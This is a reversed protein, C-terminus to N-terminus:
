GPAQLFEDDRQPKDPLRRTPDDWLLTLHYCSTNEQRDAWLQYRMDRIVNPLDKLPQSASFTQFQQAFEVLGDKQRTWLAVPAGANLLYLMVNQPRPALVDPVFGFAICMGEKLKGRIQRWGGEELWWLSHLLARERCALLHNWCQQWGRQRAPERLRELSRVVVPLCAGLPEKFEDTWQDVAQSLLERPLIFEVLVKDENVGRAGLIERLDTVLGTLDEECDLNLASEKERVYVNFIRESSYFLRGRVNCRKGSSANLWIELMLAPVEETKTSAPEPIPQSDVIGFYRAIQKIAQELRNRDETDGVLPLLKRLVDLLPVQGHALQGRGILWELLDLCNAAPPIEHPANTPMAQHCWARLTQGSISCKQFLSDLFVRQEWTLWGGTQPQPSFLGAPLKSWVDKLHALSVAYGREGQYESHSVVAFVTRTTTCIVPSGSYGGELLTKSEIWLKWAKVRPGAPAKFLVQSGLTGELTEARKVEGTLRAFGVIGCAMAHSGALGLKLPPNALERVRLVALDVQDSQGCALLEAPQDDVLIAGGGERVDEVVHACTLVWTEGPQSHISFGTGFKKSKSGTILVVSDLLDDLVQPM